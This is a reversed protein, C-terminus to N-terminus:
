RIINKSVNSYFNSSYINITSDDIFFRKEALYRAKFHIACLENLSADESYNSEPPLFEGRDEIVWGVVDHFQSLIGALYLHRPHNGTILLLKSM